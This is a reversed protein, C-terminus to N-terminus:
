DNRQTRDAGQNGRCICGTGGIVGVSAVQVRIGGHLSIVGASVVWVRIVGTPAGQGGIGKCFRDAEGIM